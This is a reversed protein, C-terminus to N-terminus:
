FMGNENVCEEPVEQGFDWMESIKGSEFRFIHMVAYGLHDANPQIHSHVAVLDGDELARHITFIKEPSTKANEEMAIMLTKADSKFYVNHHKMNKNVYLEFAKRSDGKAARHLFDISKEKLSKSAM